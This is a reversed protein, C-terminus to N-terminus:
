QGSVKQGSQNEGGKNESIRDKGNPVGSPKGGDGSERNNKEREWCSARRQDHKTTLKIKV